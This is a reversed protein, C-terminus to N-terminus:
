FGFGVGGHCVAGIRQLRRGLDRCRTSGAPAARRGVVGAQRWLRRCRHRYPDAGEVATASAAMGIMAADFAGARSIPQDISDCRDNLGSVDLGAFKQDTYANASSLTQVDDATM